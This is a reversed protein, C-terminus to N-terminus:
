DDDDDFLTRVLNEKDSNSDRSVENVMDYISKESKIAGPQVVGNHKVTNRPTSTAIGDVQSDLISDLQGGDDNAEERTVSEKFNARRNAEQLIEGSQKAAFSSTPEVSRQTSYVKTEESSREAFLGERIAQPSKSATKTATKIPDDVKEFIGAPVEYSVTETNSKSKETKEKQAEGTSRSVIDNTRIQEDLKSVVTQAKRLAEEPTKATVYLDFKNDKNPSYIHLMIDNKGDSFDKEGSRVYKRQISFNFPRQQEKEKNIEPNDLKLEDLSRKISEITERNASVSLKVQESNHNINYKKM